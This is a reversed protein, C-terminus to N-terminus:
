KKSGCSSQGAESVIADKEAENMLGADVFDEAAHAVCSVYGGHNKWNNDCPCLQPISCGPQDGTGAVVEGAPTNSCADVADLVGDNDDDTDCINGAGDGDSDTQQANADFRCNDNADLIGDNDDDTDCVDGLGDGDNNLQDSNTDLPCNDENGCIGDSDLDDENDFPCDDCVDGRGDSDADAQGTNAINSCNDADDPVGDNDIDGGPKCKGASDANVIAQIEVASLARNFIEVEDILGDFPRILREHNGIWLEHSVAPIPQTASQAAVEIGNVYLRSSQRDYTCAVHTWQNLPINGGVPNTFDGINCHAVGATTGDGVAILYQTSGANGERRLISPAGNPFSFPFVWADLTIADTPNLSPSSAIRVGSNSSANFLFAHDVQGPAFMAGNTLEGDNGGEIDNVNEDGTWWSILGPPPAVCTQAVGVGSWICLAFLLLFGRYLVPRVTTRLHKMIKEKTGLPVTTFQQRKATNAKPTERGRPSIEGFAAIYHIPFVCVFPM